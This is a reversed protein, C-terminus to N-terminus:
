VYPGAVAPDFTGTFSVSMNVSAGSDAYGGSTPTTLVLPINSDFTYSGIFSASDFTGFPDNDISGAFTFTIPTALAGSALMGLFLGALLKTRLRAGGENAVDRRPGAPVRPSAAVM